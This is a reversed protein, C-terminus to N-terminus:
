SEWWVKSTAVYVVSELTVGRDKLRSLVDAIDGLTPADARKRVAVAEAVWAAPPLAIEHDLCWAHLRELEDDTLVSATGALEVRTWLAPILTINGFADLHNM